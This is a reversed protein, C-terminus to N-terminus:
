AEWISTSPPTPWQDAEPAVLRFKGLQSCSLYDATFNSKSPIHKAHILINCELCTLVLKRVLNIVRDFKSTSKNLVHVVAMNKIHFIM